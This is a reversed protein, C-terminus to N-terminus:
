RLLAQMAWPPTRVEKYSYIGRILFDSDDSYTDSRYKMRQQRDTFKYFGHKENVKNPKGRKRIIVTVIVKGSIIYVCQRKAQLFNNSLEAFEKDLLLFYLINTHEETENNNRRISNLKM